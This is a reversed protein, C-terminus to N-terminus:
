FNFKKKLGDLLKKGEAVIEAPAEDLDGFPAKLKKATGRDSKPVRPKLPDKEAGAFAVGSGAFAVATLLSCVMLFKKM